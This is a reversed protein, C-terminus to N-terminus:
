VRLKSLPVIIDLWDHRAVKLNAAARNFRGNGLRKQLGGASAAAGRGHSIISDLDGTSRM